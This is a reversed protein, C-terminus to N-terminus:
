QNKSFSVNLLGHKFDAKASDSDINVPLPMKRFFSGMIREQYLFNRENEGFEKFKGEIFVSEESIEVNLEEPNIGPLEYVYYFKSDDELIDVQPVFYRQNNYSSIGSSLDGQSNQVDFNKHTM